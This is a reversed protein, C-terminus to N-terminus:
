SEEDGIIEMAVLAFGLEEEPIEVTPDGGLLVEKVMSSVEELSYDVPETDAELSTSAFPLNDKNYSYTM